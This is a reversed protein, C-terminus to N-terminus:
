RKPHQVLCDLTDFEPEVVVQDADPEVVVVMAFAPM